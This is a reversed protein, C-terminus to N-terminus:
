FCLAVSKAAFGAVDRDKDVQLESLLARVKPRSSDPVKTVVAGLAKAVRLRVNPVDDSGAALLLSLAEQQMKEPLDHHLLIHHLAVVMALRHFYEDKALVKVAPFVKENIFEGGGSNCLGLFSEGCSIRVEDVSDKLLALHLAIFNTTYYEIGMHKVVAAMSMALTKRLRWFSDQFSAVINATLMTALAPVREVIEPLKSIVRLRVMPDEDRSLRFVLENMALTLQQDLAMIAIDTCMDAVSKRV